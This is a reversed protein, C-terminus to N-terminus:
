AYTKGEKALQRHIEVENFGDGSISIPSAVEGLVKVWVKGTKAIEEKEKETFEWCSILCACGISEERTRLVHM